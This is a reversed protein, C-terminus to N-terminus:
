NLQLDFKSSALVIRDDTRRANESLVSHHTQTTASLRGNAQSALSSQISPKELLFIKNLEM